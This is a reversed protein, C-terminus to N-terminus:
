EGSRKELYMTGGGDTVLLQGDANFEMKSDAGNLHIIGTEADYTFDSEQGGISMLGTGDSAFSMVADFGLDRLAQMDEESASSDGAEIKVVDYTGTYDIPESKSSCAALVFIMALVLLISLVRKM